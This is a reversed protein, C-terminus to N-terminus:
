DAYHAGPGHAPHQQKSDAAKEKDYLDLGNDLRSKYVSYDDTGPKAGNYLSTLSGTDSMMKSLPQGTENSKMRFLALQMNVDETTPSLRDKSRKAAALDYSVDVGSGDKAKLLGDFAYLGMIQATGYSTGLDALLDHNGSHEMEAVHEKDLHASGISSAKIDLPKKQDGKLYGPAKADYNNRLSKYQRPEFRQQGDAYIERFRAESLGSMDGFHSGNDKSDFGVTAGHMGTLQTLRQTEEKSLKTGARQAKQLKEMEQYQETRKDIGAETMKASAAKKEEPNTSKLARLDKLDLKKAALRDLLYREDESLHNKKELETRAAPDTQLKQIDISEKSLVKELRAAEGSFHKGLQDRRQNRGGENIMHAALVREASAIGNNKLIGQSDKMLNVLAQAKAKPAMDVFEQHAAITGVSASASAAGLQPGHAIQHPESDNHSDDHVSSIGNRLASWPDPKSDGSHGSSWNADAGIFGLKKDHKGM